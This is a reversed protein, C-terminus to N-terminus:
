GDLVVIVEELINGDIIRFSRTTPVEHRLSVIVYHWSPDPARSVDTESPWPDTRTHSHFVGIVELGAATAAKDIRLHAKPDILYVEASRAVSDTPHVELLTGTDPQGVLLGCGEEPYCALLHAAMEDLHAGALRLQSDRFFGDGAEAPQLM